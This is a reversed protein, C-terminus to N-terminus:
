TASQDFREVRCTPGFLQGNHRIGDRYQSTRTSRHYPTLSSPTSVSKHMRGDHLLDAATRMEHSITASMASSLTFTPSLLSPEYTITPSLELVICLNPSSSGPLQSLAKITLHFRDLTVEAKQSVNQYLM